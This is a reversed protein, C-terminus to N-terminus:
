IAAQLIAGAAFAFLAATGGLVLTELAGRWRALGVIMARATGVGVFALGTLAASWALPAALAGDTAVDVVFPAVPVFGVIVFALFTAIASRLPTPAQRAFGHEEVLMTDLWRGPDATIAAVVQELADGKLGKAAYIQRVEEREGEPVRAIHELEQRRIRAQRQEDARIGLYNSAAMSFGDAALNAIGLIVVIAAELSAGRVGAVVAFTTVTGDIAGYVLDRLYSRGPGVELRAAIAEPTHSTVLSPESM